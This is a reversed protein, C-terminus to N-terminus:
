LMGACFAGLCNGLAPNPKENDRTEIKVQEITIGAATSVDQVVNMFLNFGVQRTNQNSTQASREFFVLDEETFAAANLRNVQRHLPTLIILDKDYAKTIQAKIQLYFDFPPNGGVSGYQKFETTVAGIDKNAFKIDFGRQILVSTVADYTNMKKEPAVKANVVTKWRIPECGLTAIAAVAVLSTWLSRM